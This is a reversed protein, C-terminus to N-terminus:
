PSIGTVRLPVVSGKVVDPIADSGIDTPHKVRASLDGKVM